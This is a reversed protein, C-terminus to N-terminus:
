VLDSPKLNRRAGYRITLLWVAQRGEDLEYIVRYVNPKKGYLLQRLM